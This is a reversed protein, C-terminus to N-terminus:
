YGPYPGRPGFNQNGPQCLTGYRSNSKALENCQLGLTSSPDVKESSYAAGTWMQFHLHVGTSNGTTGMTGVVTGAEVRQGSTVQITHLHMYQSTTGNDHSVDVYFGASDSMPDRVRSVTGPAISFIPITGPNGSSRPELSVTDIGGHNQSGQNGAAM